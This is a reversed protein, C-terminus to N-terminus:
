TQPMLFHNVWLKRLPPTRAVNKERTAVLEAVLEPQRRERERAVLTSRHWLRVAGGLSRKRLSHKFSEEKNTTKL